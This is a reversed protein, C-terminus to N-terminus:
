SFFAWSFLHSKLARRFVPYSDINRLATPVSNWVIFGCVSYTRKGFQNRVRRVAAFRTTSSRLHRRQLYETNFTVLDALYSLCRKYLIQHLSWNFKKQIEHPYM